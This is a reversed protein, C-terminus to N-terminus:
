EYDFRCVPNFFKMNNGYRLPVLEPPHDYVHGRLGWKSRVRGDPLVLGIHQPFFGVSYLVFAGPERHNLQNKPCCLTMHTAESDVDGFFYTFCDMEPPLTDVRQFIDIGKIEIVSDPNHAAMFEVRSRRAKLAVTNIDDDYEIVELM